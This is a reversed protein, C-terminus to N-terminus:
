AVKKRWRKNIHMARLRGNHSFRVARVPTWFWREVTQVITMAVEDTAFIALYAWTLASGLRRYAARVATVIPNRM